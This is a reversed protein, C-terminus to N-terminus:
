TGDAAQTFSRMRPDSALPHLANWWISVPGRELKSHPGIREVSGTTSMRLSHVHRRDDSAFFNNLRQGLPTPTTANKTAVTLERLEHPKLDLVHGWVIGPRTRSLQRDAAEKFNDFISDSVKDTRASRVCVSALGDPPFVVTYHQSNGLDFRQELFSRVEDKSPRGPVSSRVDSFAFPHLSVSCLDNACNNGAKVAEGVHQALANLSSPELRDPLQVDVLLARSQRAESLLDKHLRWVFERADVEHIKRGLDASFTKCEVEIELDNARVLFDFGGGQELDNCTVDWGRHMLDTIVILEFALSAVGEKSSLLGKLRGELAKKARTPLRQHVQNLAASFAVLGYFSDDSLAESPWRGSEIAERIAREMACEIAFRNLVYDNLLPNHQVRRKNSNLLRSWAKETGMAITADILRPLEPASVHPLFLM